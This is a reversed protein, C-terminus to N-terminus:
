PKRQEPTQGSAALFRRDLFDKLWFAARGHWSVRRWVALGTGDGLNLILLFSRQPKFARLSARRSRGLSALLNHFLVPAERVAYVGIRALPREAFAVCDGGGFISPHGVAQLFRNVRLGGDPGVPLGSERLLASPELGAANVLFDFAFREGQDTIVVGNEVRNVRARLHVDVRRARLLRAAKRATAPAFQEFIRDGAALLIVEAKAAGIRDLLARVNMAIEGGSAGGGVVAVRRVTRGAAELDRRLGALRELPKIGYVNGHGSTGPLEVAESGVNISLADFPVEQGDELVIKQGAPDIRAAWGEIFEGGAARVLGAVDIQDQEPPYFGGLVGTALGSYWFPGPAILVLRIGQQRFQAARRISHLHAHGAGLLIATKRLPMMPVTTLYAARRERPSTNM